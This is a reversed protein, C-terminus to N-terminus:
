KRLLVDFSSILLEDDPLSQFERNLRGRAIPLSSWTEKELALIEFGVDRMIRLMEECRLRNTYFGSEAMWSSEWVRRSFRLNNLGEALHDRLDVRHSSLAGPKAVRYLEAVVARFESLRVHELV